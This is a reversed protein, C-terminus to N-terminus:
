CRAGRAVYRIGDATIKGNDALNLRDVSRRFVLAQAVKELHDDRLGCESVDLSTLNANKCILECLALCEEITLRAHGQVHLAPPPENTGTKSQEQLLHMIPPVPKANFHRSVTVYRETLEILKLGRRSVRKRSATRPKDAHGEPLNLTVRREPPRGHRQEAESRATRAVPAYPLDAPDTNAGERFKLISTVDPSAAVALVLAAEPAEPRSSEAGTACPLGAVHARAAM